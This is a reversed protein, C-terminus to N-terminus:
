ILRDRKSLYQFLLAFGEYMETFLFLETFQSTLNQKIKKLLLNHVLAHALAPAPAPASGPGFNLSYFQLRLAVKVM